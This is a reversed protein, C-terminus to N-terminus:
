EHFTSLSVLDPRRVMPVALMALTHFFHLQNATDYSAKKGHLNHGHAGYAAFAVALVGFIGALQVFKRSRGLQNWLSSGGVLVLEPM